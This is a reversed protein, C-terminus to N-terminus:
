CTGIIPVEASRWRWVGSAGDIDFDSYYTVHLGASAFGGVFVSRAGVMEECRTYIMPNDSFLREGFRAEHALISTVAQLTTPLSYNAKGDESESLKALMANHKVKNKGRSGNVFDMGGLVDNKMLAWYSKDNPKGIQNAVAQEFCGAGALRLKTVSKPTQNRLILTFMHTDRIKKTPDEPDPRDLVKIIDRPLTPEVDDRVGWYHLWQEKGFAIQEVAKKREANIAYVMGNCGRSTESFAKFDDFDLRSAILKFVDDANPLFDSKIEAPYQIKNAAMGHHFRRFAVIAISVLAGAAAGLTITLGVSTSAAVAVAAGLLAGAAISGIIKVLDAAVPHKEFFSHWSKLSQSRLNTEYIM